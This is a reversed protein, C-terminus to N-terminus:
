LAGIVSILAALTINDAGFWCSEALPDFGDKVPM